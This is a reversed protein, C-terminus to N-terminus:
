IIWEIEEEQANNIDEVEVVQYESMGFTIDNVKPMPLIYGFTLAKMYEDSENDYYDM